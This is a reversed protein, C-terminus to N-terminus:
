RREPVPRQSGSPLNTRVVEGMGVVCEDGITVTQRIVTGSGIFSGTGVRVGSNLRAGTAVHCHDGVVADHEVLALSNVICNRGVAAAANVVAGHMVITGAGVTAHHSVVARPSVVVPLEVGAAIAQDFLRMRIAPSKIQGVAVLAAPYRGLLRTLDADDGLVPYGLVNSGVESDTGVLGAITFHGELEIVDICARAHGGAGLLLLPASSV